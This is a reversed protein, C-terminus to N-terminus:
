TTGWMVNKVNLLMLVRGVDLEVAQASSVGMWFTDRKVSLVYGMMVVTWVILPLKLASGACM